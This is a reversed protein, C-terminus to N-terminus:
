SGSSISSRQWRCTQDTHRRHRVDALPYRKEDKDNYTSRPWLAIPCLFVASPVDQGIVIQFEDPKTILNLVGAVKKVEDVNVKSKDRAQVRLRTMCHSVSAINAEGGCKEIIEKAMLAYDKKAM